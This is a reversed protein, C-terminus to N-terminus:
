RRSARRTRPEGGRPRRDLAAHREAREAKEQQVALRLLLLLHRRRARNAKVSATRRPAAKPPKPM